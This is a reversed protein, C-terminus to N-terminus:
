LVDYLYCGQDHLERAVRPAYYQTGYPQVNWSKCQKVLDAANKGALLQIGKPTRQTLQFIEETALAIEAMWVLVLACRRIHWEMPLARAAVQAGSTEMDKVLFTLDRLIMLHRTRESKSIHGAEQVRRTMEKFPELSKHLTELM